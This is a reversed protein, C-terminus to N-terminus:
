FFLLQDYLKTYHISYSTIVDADSATDNNLSEWIVRIQGFPNTYLLRENADGIASYIGDSGTGLNWFHSDLLNTTIVEYLM